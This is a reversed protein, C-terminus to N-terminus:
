SFNNAIISGLEVSSGDILLLISVSSFCTLDSSAPDVPDPDESEDFSLIPM